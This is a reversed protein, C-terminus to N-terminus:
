KVKEQTHKIFGLDSKSNYEIAQLLEYDLCAMLVIFSANANTKTTANHECTQTTVHPVDLTGASVPANGPLGPVTVVEVAFGQVCFNLSPSTHLYNYQRNKETQRLNLLVISSRIM